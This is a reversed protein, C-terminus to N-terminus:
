RNQIRKFHSVGM